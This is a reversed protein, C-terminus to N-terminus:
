HRQQADEPTEAARQKRKKNREYERRAALSSDETDSDSM